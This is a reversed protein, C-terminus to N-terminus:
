PPARPTEDPTEEGGDAATKAETARIQSELEELEELLNEDRVDTGWEKEIEDQREHLARRRMELSIDLYRLVMGPVTSQLAWGVGASGLMILWNVPDTLVDFTSTWTGDTTWMEMAVIVAGAFNTWGVTKTTYRRPNTDILYAVGTPLMSVVVLLVTKSFFICIGVSLAVAMTYFMPSRQPKEPAAAQPKAGVAKPRSPKARASGIEDVVNNNPSRAM